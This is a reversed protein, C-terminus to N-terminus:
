RSKVRSRIKKEVQLVELEGVFSWCNPSGRSRSEIELLMQKDVLKLQLAPIVTDALRGPEEITETSGVIEQPIRRSLKIYNSFAERCREMLVM